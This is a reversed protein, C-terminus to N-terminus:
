EEASAFDEPRPDMVPLPDPPLRIIRLQEQPVDHCRDCVRLHLNIMTDGAWQYQYRLARLNYQFGCRDCIGLAQPAFPDIEARGPWRTM